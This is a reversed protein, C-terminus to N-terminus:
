TSIIYASVHLIQSTNCSLRNSLCGLVHLSDLLSALDLKRKKQLLIELTIPLKQTTANGLERKVGQLLAKIAVKGQLPNPIALKWM